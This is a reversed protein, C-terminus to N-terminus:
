APEIVLVPVGRAAALAPGVDALSAGPGRTMLILREETDGLAAIIEDRSHASLLRVVGGDETRSAPLALVM